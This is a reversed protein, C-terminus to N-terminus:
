AVEIEYEEDDWDLESEDIEYTITIEGGNISVDPTHEEIDVVTTSFMRKILSISAM